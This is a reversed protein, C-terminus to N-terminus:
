DQWHAPTTCFPPLTTAADGRASDLQAQVLFLSEGLDTGRLDAGRLDAGTLDAKALDAGRLNTGVLLAGRMNAARLDRGSLDHGVLDAGRLDFRERGAGIRADRSARVLLRNVRDRYATLDLAMLTQPDRGALEETEDATRALADALDRHPRLGRAEDLYWLLEHLARVVPFVTAMQRAVMPSRRWDEGGFTTQSVRQGAGFCDYAACGAFGEPRLRDHISCAFDARLNPCPRDPPKDFAFEASASFAPLVCCLAFCRTCDARLGPGRRSAASGATVAGTSDPDAPSGDADDAKHHRRVDAM